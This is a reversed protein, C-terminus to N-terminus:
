RLLLFNETSYYVLSYVIVTIRFRSMRQNWDAEEGSQGPGRRFPTIISPSIGYGSDGFLHFSVDPFTYNREVLEDLEVM